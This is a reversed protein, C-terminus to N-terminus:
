RSRSALRRIELIQLDPSMDLWVLPTEPLGIARRPNMCCCAIAVELGFDHALNKFAAYLTIASGALVGDLTRVEGRGVVGPQGWLDVKEGPPLGIAKTGDSIAIVRDAPKCKFLLQAADKSVHLRDYILETYLDDNQLAYGVLGPERHHFGSMANFMHTVGRAGFEYGRRADEYTADSHGMNVFVGRQLLRTTLELAHPQEPALTVVRLRPDNLISDWQSKGVFPEVIASKPQAGPRKPSIFPGELHIGAIMPDDPLSALAKGVADANTTITTPLFAEYGERKLGDCLIHMEEPSASMFDIGFGGHIHVDVFGPVLVRNAAESVRDFEPDGSSWDVWYSGLGEPGLATYISM